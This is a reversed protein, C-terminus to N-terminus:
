AFANNQPNLLTIRPGPVLRTTDVSATGEFDLASVIIFVPESTTDANPLLDRVIISDKTAPRDPGQPFPVNIEPYRVVPVANQLTDPFNRFAVGRISVSAIGSSSDAVHVRVRLPTGRTYSEGDQPELVNIRPGVTDALALALPGAVGRLNAANVAIPMVSIEGPQLSAPLTLSFTTDKQVGSTPVLHPRLGVTDGSALILAYGIQTIGFPDSAVVRIEIDSGPSVVDGGVVGGSVTPASRDIIRVTVRTVESVGGAQDRGIAEITLISDTVEAPLQLIADIVVTDSRVPSIDFKEETNVAGRYRLEVSSLGRQAVARLRIDVRSGELVQAPVQIATVIPGGRRRVAVTRLQVESARGTRDFATVRLTLTTDTVVAPVNVTFTVTADTPGGEVQSSQSSEAAGSADLQVSAVGRSAQVSVRVTVPNGETVSEPAEINLVRPPGQSISGGEFLNDGDCGALVLLCALAPVAACRLLSRAASPRPTSESKQNM